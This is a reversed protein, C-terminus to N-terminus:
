AAKVRSPPFLQRLPVGLETALFEQLAVYEREENICMSLQKRIVDVSAKSGTQKKRLRALSSVTKGKRLLLIRRDLPTM